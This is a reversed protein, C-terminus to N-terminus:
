FGGIHFAYGNGISWSGVEGFFYFFKGCGGLLWVVLEGVIETDM